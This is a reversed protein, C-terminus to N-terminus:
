LSCPRSLAPRPNWLFPLSHAPCPLSVPAPLPFALERTKSVHAHAGKLFLFARQPTPIRRPFPFSFRGGRGKRWKGETNIWDGRVVTKCAEILNDIIIDKAGGKEVQEQIRGIKQLAVAAARATKWDRNKEVYEGFGAEQLHKLRSTSDVLSPDASAGFAINLMAASRAPGTAKASVSWLILFVENPIM